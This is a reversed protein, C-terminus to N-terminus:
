IVAVVRQRLLYNSEDKIKIVLPILYTESWEKPSKKMISIVVSTAKIRVAEIKNKM